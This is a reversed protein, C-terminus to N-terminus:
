KDGGDSLSKHKGKHHCKQCKACWVWPPPKKPLKRQEPMSVIAFGKGRNAFGLTM